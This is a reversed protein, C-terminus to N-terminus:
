PTEWRTCVPEDSEVVEHTYGAGGGLFVETPHYQKELHSEMCQGHNPAACSALGATSAALFAFTFFEAFARHRSRTPFMTRAERQSGFKCVSRPAMEKSTPLPAESM